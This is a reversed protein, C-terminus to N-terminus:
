VNRQQVRLSLLLGNDAHPLYLYQRLVEILLVVLAQQLIDMVGRM